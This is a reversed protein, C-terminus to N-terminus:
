RRGDEIRMRSHSLLRTVGGWGQYVCADLMLTDELCKADLANAELACDGGSRM